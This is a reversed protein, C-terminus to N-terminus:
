PKGGIVNRCEAAGLAQALEANRDEVHTKRDSEAMHERMLRGCESACRELIFDVVASVTAEEYLEGVGNFFKTEVEDTLENRISNSM